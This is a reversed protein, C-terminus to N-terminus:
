GAPPRMHNLRPLALHVQHDQELGLLLRRLDGLPDARRQHPLQDHRKQVPRSVPVGPVSAFGHIAIGGVIYSAWPLWVNFETSWSMRSKSYVHWHGDPTVHGPGATSVHITRLVKGYKSVIIMIQRLKHIEIHHFQRM